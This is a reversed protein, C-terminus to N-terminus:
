KKNIRKHLTYEYRALIIGVLVVALPFALSWFPVISTFVVMVAGIVLTILGFIILLRYVFGILRQRQRIPEVESTPDKEVQHGNHSM